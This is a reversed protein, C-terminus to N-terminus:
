PHGFPTHMASCCVLQEAAQIVELQTGELYGYATGRPPHVQPFAIPNAMRAFCKATNSLEGTRDTGNHHPLHNQQWRGGITHKITVSSM